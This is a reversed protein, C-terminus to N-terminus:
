LLNQIQKCHETHSGTFHLSTLHSLNKLFSSESMVYLGQVKITIIVMTASQPAFQALHSRQRELKMNMITDPPTRIIPVHSAVSLAEKMLRVRLLKVKFSYPGALLMLLWSASIISFSNTSGATISCAAKISM